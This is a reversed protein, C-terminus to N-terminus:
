PTTAPRRLRELSKRFKECPDEDDTRPTFWVFDFPLADAHLLPAYGPPDSVDDRVALFAISLVRLRPHIAALVSPVGYDRRAHGFGAILVVGDTAPREAVAVSMAVDRRRQAEVMPALMREDAHGCHAAVIDEELARRAAAALPPLPLVSADRTRLKERSLNAARIPLEAGLAAEFVPRYIAFDPWGSEQWAVAGAIDDARETASRGRSGRLAADVDAQDELDLQEFAVAPRRGSRVLMSLVRTQLLHHDPHDHQEGLLVVDAKAAASLLADERVFRREAVAYIRGTLPHAVGSRAVWSHSDGGQRASACGVIAACAVLVLLIRSFSPRQRAEM